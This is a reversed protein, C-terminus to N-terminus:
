RNCMFIFPFLRRMFIPDAERARFRLRNHGDDMVLRLRNNGCLSIFDRCPYQLLAQTYKSRCMSSMEKGSRMRSVYKNKTSYPTIKTSKRIAKHMSQYINKVFCNACTVFILARKAVHSIRQTPDVKNCSGYGPVILYNSKFRVLYAESFVGQVVQQGM